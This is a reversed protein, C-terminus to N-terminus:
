SLECCILEKRCVYSINNVSQYVVLARFSPSHAPLPFTDQGNAHKMKSSGPPYRSFKTSSLWVLPPPPIGNAECRELM